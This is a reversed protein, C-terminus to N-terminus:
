KRRGLLLAGGGLVVISALWVAPAAGIAAVTTKNVGGEDLPIERNALAFSHLGILFALGALITTIKWCRCLLTIIAPFYLLNACWGLQGFFLGMWGMLLVQAGLWRDGNQLHYAPLACALGFIGLTIGAVILRGKWSPRSPM